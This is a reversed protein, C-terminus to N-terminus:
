KTWGIRVGSRRDPLEGLPAGKFLPLRVYRGQQVRRQVGGYIGVHRNIDAFEACEVLVPCGTCWVLATLEAEMETEPTHFDLVDFQAPDAVRCAAQTQWSTTGRVEAIDRNPPTLRNFCPVSCYRRDAWVQNSLNRPREFRRGCGGCTKTEVSTAATM